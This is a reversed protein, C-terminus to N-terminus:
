NKEETNQFLKPLVATLKKESCEVSNGLSDTQNQVKTQRPNEIM